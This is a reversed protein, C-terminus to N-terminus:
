RNGLGRQRGLCGWTQTRLQLSMCLSESYVGELWRNGSSRCLPSPAPCCNEWFFVLLLLKRVCRRAGEWKEVRKRINLYFFEFAKFHNVSLKKTFNHHLLFSPVRISVRRRFLFPRERSGRVHLPEPPKRFLRILGWQQEFGLYSVSRPLSKSRGLIHQAREAIGMIHVSRVSLAALVQSVSDCALPALVLWGGWPALSGPLSSWFACGFVM